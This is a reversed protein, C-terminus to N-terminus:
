IDESSTNSKTIDNIYGSLKENKIRERHLRADNLENFENEVTEIGHKLYYEYLEQKFFDPIDMKLKKETEEIFETFKTEIMKESVQNVLRREWRNELKNYEKDTPTWRSKLIKSVAVPSVKFFEALKDTPLEEPFEDHLKRIARATSPSLKKVKSLDTKIAKERLAYKNRLWQPLDTRKRWGSPPPTLKQKNNNINKSEEEKELIKTNKQLYDNWDRKNYVKGRFGGPLKELDPLNWSTPRKGDSNFLGRSLHLLRKQINWM